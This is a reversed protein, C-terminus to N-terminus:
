DTDSFEAPTAWIGPDGFPQEETPPPDGASAPAAPAPPLEGLEWMLGSRPREPPDPNLVVGGRPEGSPGALAALALGAAALGALAPAKTM